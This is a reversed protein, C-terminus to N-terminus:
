GTRLLNPSWDPLAVQQAASGSFVSLEALLPQPKSSRFCHNCWPGHHHMSGRQQSRRLLSRSSRLWYWPRKM